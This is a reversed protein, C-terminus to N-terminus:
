HETVAFTQLLSAAEEQACKITREVPFEAWACTGVGPHSEIYFSGGHLEIM